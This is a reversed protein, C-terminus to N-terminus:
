DGNFAPTGRAQLIKGSSNVAVAENMFFLFAGNRDVIDETNPKLGAGHPIGSFICYGASNITCAYQDAPRGGQRPTATPVAQSIQTSNKTKSAAVKQAATQTDTTQNGEDCAVLLLMFAAPLLLLITLKLNIEM